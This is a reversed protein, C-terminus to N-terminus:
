VRLLIFIEVVLIVFFACISNKVKNDLSKINKEIETNSFYFNKKSLSKLKNFKKEYKIISKDKYKRVDKVIKRVLNIRSDPHRRRLSLYYNLNKQFDKSKTNLIKIM